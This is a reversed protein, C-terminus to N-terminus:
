GGRAVWDAAQATLIHSPCRASASSRGELTVEEEGFINTM